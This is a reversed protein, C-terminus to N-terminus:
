VLVPNKGSCPFTRFLTPIKETVGPGGLMEAESNDGLEEENVRGQLTRTWGPLCVWAILM